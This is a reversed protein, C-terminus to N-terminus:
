CLLATQELDSQIAGEHSITTLVHQVAAIMLKDSQAEAQRLKTELEDCLSTLQNVKDVIRKQEELPAVPIPTMKLERGAIGVQGATTKLRAEVFSRSVGTNMVISLFEPWLGGPILRGRILKDPHILPEDHQPVVGCIGVFDRNGSYRTFLLDGADVRFGEYNESSESLYRFENINVLNPRLASIRLLRTNGFDQPPVSIGNRLSILVDDLTTWQWGVPLPPLKAGSRIAALRAKIQGSQVFGQKLNHINALLVSAPEDNRDQPILKGVAALQLITSRLKAVADISHYLKDFNDVLRVTVHEFDKRTLSAAKNLPALVAANLRLRSEHEAQHRAELEDALRMLEDIKAVIRKQEEYPPLPFVVEKVIGTNLNLQAGGFARRKLESQFHQFFYYLYKATLFKENLSPFALYGDHICGNIGLICPVGITASNSLIFTGKELYVSKKCGDETLFEDTDKLVWGESYKKIDSIKIWHYPTRAISFYKPDGKPRPSAGRIIYLLNGLRNYTWGAPLIRPLEYDKIAELPDSKRIKGISELHERDKKIRDALITAPEDNPDQSVIKGSIALDLVLERLQQIGNPSATLEAFNDLFPQLSM